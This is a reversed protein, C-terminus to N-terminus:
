NGNITPVIGADFRYALFLMSGLAILLFIWELAPWYLAAIALPLLWCCNILCVGVTVPSHSKIAISAHQYAHSRHAQYWVEGRVIRRLLTVTADVFFVSGLIIWVSLPLLDKQISILAILGLMFGLFGSGVDGMFIAAPPWNWILFGFCGSAIILLPLIETYSDPSNSFLVSLLSAALAIFMAESGAIGDIGDMFNFLNLIWVLGIVMLLYNMVAGELRYGAIALVPIEGMWFLAWFAAFFHICIRWRPSVPRHDDWFSVASVLVGSGIMAMFDQFRLQGSLYLCLLAGFFLIVFAMGGGTPTPVTHSSRDNPFDIVARSLAYRRIAYTLGWALGTAVLFLIFVHGLNMM